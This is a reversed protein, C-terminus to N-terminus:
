NGPRGQLLHFSLLGIGLFAFPLPVMWVNRMTPPLLILLVIMTGFALTTLVIGLIPLVTQDPERRIGPQELPFEPLPIGKDMAVLREKHIIDLKKQRDLHRLYYYGFIGGALAMTVLGDGISYSM